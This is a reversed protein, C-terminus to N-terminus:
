VIKRVFLKFKRRTRVRRDVQGIETSNQISRHEQRSPSFGLVQILFVIAQNIPIKRMSHPYRDIAIKVFHVRVADFEPRRAAWGKWFQRKVPLSLSKTIGQQSAARSFDYRQRTLM